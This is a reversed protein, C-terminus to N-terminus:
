ESQSRQKRILQDQAHLDPVLQNVKHGLFNPSISYFLRLLVTVDSHHPRISHPM